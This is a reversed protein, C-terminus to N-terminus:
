RATRYTCFVDGKIKEYKECIELNNRLQVIFLLAACVIANSIVCRDHLILFVIRLTYIAEGVLDVARFTRLISFSTGLETNFTQGDFKLNGEM